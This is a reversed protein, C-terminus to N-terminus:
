ASTHGCWLWGVGQTLRPDQPRDRRRSVRVEPSFSIYGRVDSTPAETPVAAAGAPLQVWDVVVDYRIRDDRHPTGGDGGTAGPRRRLRSWDVSEPPFHAVGDVFLARDSAALVADRWTARIMDPFCRTSAMAKGLVHGADAAAARIRHGFSGRVVVM